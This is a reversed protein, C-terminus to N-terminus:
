RFKLRVFSSKKKTQSDPDTGRPWPTLIEGAILGREPTPSIM